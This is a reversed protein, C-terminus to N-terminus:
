EFGTEAYSSANLKIKSSASGMKFQGDCVALNKGLYLMQFKYNSGYDCIGSGNLSAGQICTLCKTKSECTKCFLPCKECWEATSKSVAYSDSDCTNCKQTIENFITYGLCGQQLRLNTLGWM